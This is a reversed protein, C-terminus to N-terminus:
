PMTARQHAHGCSRATDAVRELVLNVHVAAVDDDGVLGLAEAACILRGSRVLEKGRHDRGAHCRHDRHIRLVSAPVDTIWGDFNVVVGLADRMADRDVNV